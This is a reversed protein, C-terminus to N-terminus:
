KARAGGQNARAKWTGMTMQRVNVDGQRLWATPVGKERKAPVQMARWNVRENKVQGGAPM